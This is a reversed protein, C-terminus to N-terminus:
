IKLSNVVFDWLIIRAEMAAKAYHTAEAWKTEDAGCLETLMEIALHSHHDGDVEIHRELYYKFISFSVDSTESFENVLQLFMDPILDERGFTFVSAVLYSKGTAITDFTFKLFQRIGESQITADIAETITKGTKLQGILQHIAETSAGSQHMAKLYLEFHSIRNGAEDIDSEEGAVIENILYRTNASGVPVWPLSVCTLSQQLSKLLSMFDWVAYIHHAMFVRLDEPTRVMKYVPHAILRQRVPEIAEKLTKIHHNM